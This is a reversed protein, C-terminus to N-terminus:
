NGLVQNKLDEISISQGSAFVPALKPYQRCLQRHFESRLGRVWFVKWKQTTEDEHQISEMTELREILTSYLDLADQAAASRSAQSEALDSDTGDVPTDIGSLQSQRLRTEAFVQRSAVKAMAFEMLEWTISSPLHAVDQHELIFRLVSAANIVRYNVLKQLITSAVFPRQKWFTMVASVTTDQTLDSPSCINRLISLNHEIADMAHSFSQFGNQLICQVLLNITDFDEDDTSKDGIDALAKGIVEADARSQLLAILTQAEHHFKDEPAAYSFVPGPADTALLHHYQEPLTKKVRQNYSLEAEKNIAEKIFTLRPHFAPLTLDEVWEPWKWNFGFNSLHHSFWNWFRYALVPEFNDLNGYVSRIARGFTPAIAQPVLKCLETLVSHYYVTKHLPQPLQFLRAFVAEVVIDEAKWTPGKEPIKDLPTGRLVFLDPPLYSELDILFRATEKRNYPLLDLVDFIIDRFVSSAIDNLAPVTEVPQKVYLQFYHCRPTAPAAETNFNVQIEPPRIAASPSAVILSDFRAICTSIWGLDSVARCQAYLASLTDIPDGISKRYSTEDAQLSTALLPEIKDLLNNSAEQSTDDGSHIIYPMTIMVTYMVSDSFSTRQEEALAELGELMNHLIGLIAPTTCVVQQHLSAFFRLLLKTDRWNCEAISKELVGAMYTVVKTGIAMEQSSALSVVAAYQPVKLNLQLICLKLLNLVQDEHHATEMAVVFGRGVYRIDEEAPISGPDALRILDRRLNAVIDVPPRARRYHEEDDFDRPRKRQQRGGGNAYAHPHNAM